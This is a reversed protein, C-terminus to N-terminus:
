AASLIGRINQIEMIKIEQTRFGTGRDAYLPILKIIDDIAQPDNQEFARQSLKSIQRDLELEVESAMLNEDIIADSNIDFNNQQKYKEVLARSLINELNKDKLGYYAKDEELNRLYNVVIMRELIANIFVDQEKENSLGKYYMSISDSEQLYRSLVTFKNEYQTLINALIDVDINPIQNFDFNSAVQKVFEISRKEMIEKINLSSNLFAFIGSTKTIEDKFASVRLVSLSGDFGEIKNLDSVMKIRSKTSSISDVYEGNAIYTFIGYDFYKELNTNKDTQEFVVSIEKNEEKLQKIMSIFKTQAAEKSGLEMELLSITKDIYSDTFLIKANTGLGDSEVYMDIANLMDNSTSVSEALDDIYVAINQNITIAEVKKNNLLAVEKQIDVVNNTKILNVGVLPNGNKSYSLEKDKNDLDVEIIDVNANIGSLSQFQKTQSFQETIDQYNVGEALLVSAGNYNGLWGRVIKGNKSKFKISVSKFNFDKINRPKDNIVYIPITKEINKVEVGGNESLSVNKNGYLNIAEEVGISKLYRYDIILHTGINVFIASAFAEIASFALPILQSLFIGLAFVFSIATIITLIKPGKTQLHGNIFGVPNFLSSITETNLIKILANRISFSGESILNNLSQVTTPLISSPVNDIDSEIPFFPSSFYPDNNMFSYKLLIATCTASLSPVRGVLWGYSSYNYVHNLNSAPYIGTDFGLEKSLATADNFISQAMEYDGMLYYASAMQLSWEFSVNFRCEDDYKRNSGIGYNENTELNVFLERSWSYLHYKSIREFEEQNPIYKRLLDENDLRFDNEVIQAFKSFDRQILGSKEYIDFNYKKLASFVQIGWSFTDLASSYDADGRIINNSNEILYKNTFTAIELLMKKDEEINDNDPLLTKLNLYAIADLMHETSVYGGVVTAESGYISGHNTKRDVLYKDVVSILEDYKDSGTVLKYQVAALGVWIIEGTIEFHEQNSKYIKNKFKYFEYIENLVKDAKETEGLKLLTIVVLSQDYTNKLTSLNNFERSYWEDIDEQSMGDVNYSFFDYTDPDKFYLINDVAQDVYNVIQQQTYSPRIYDDDNRVTSCATMSLIMVLALVVSIVRKSVNDVQRKFFSTKETDETKAQEVIRIVSSWEDLKSLLDQGSLPNSKKVELFDFHDTSDLDDILTKYHAKDKSSINMSDIENYFYLKKYESEKGESFIEFKYSVDITEILLSEDGVVINKIDQIGINLLPTGDKYLAIENDSFLFKGAKTSLSSSDKLVARKDKLQEKVSRLNIPQFPSEKEKRLLAGQMWDPMYEYVIPEVGDLVKGNYESNAIDWIVGDGIYWKNNVMFICVDKSVQYIQPAFLSEGFNFTAKYVENVIRKLKDNELKEISGKSFDHERVLKSVENDIDIEIINGDKDEFELKGKQTENKVNIEGAFLKNLQDVLMSITIGNANEGDLLVDVINLIQEKQTSNAMLPLAIKQQEILKAINDYKEKSFLSNSGSVNPMITINSIGKKNLIDNIGSTHYGGSVLVVIEKANSLIIESNNSNEFVNNSKVNDSLSMNKVFIENRYDNTEYFKDLQAFQNQMKYVDDSISYKSYLDKFKEIGVQLYNWQAPTLSALVYGKFYKEFDSLYAVELETKNKSLFTRIANVLNKEEKVLELPNFSSMKEKLNIYTELNPTNKLIDKEYEKNYKEIVKKFESINQFDNTLKSVTAFQDYSLNNKLENVTKVIEKKLNDYNITNNEDSLGLYSLMNKYNKINIKFQKSYEILSKFYLDQSINGKEYNSIIESLEKNENSLYKTKLIDIEKEINALYKLNKEKNSVINKLREINKLYIDKNEVGHLKEENNTRLAYYESATIKAEKLLNEILTDKFKPNIKDLLSLDITGYGGEVYIKSIKYNKDLEKIISYINKQVSYDCHLDQINVVVTSSLNNKSQSVKGYKDVFLSNLQENDKDNFLQQQEKMTNVEFSAFLNNSVITFIFCVTTIIACFKKLITSKLKM